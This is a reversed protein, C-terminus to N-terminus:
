AAVLVRGEIEDRSWDVAGMQTNENDEVVTFRAVLYRSTSEFQYDDGEDVSERKLPSATGGISSNKSGNRPRSPPYEPIQWIILQGDDAISALYRKSHDETTPSTSSSPLPSWKIVQVDDTHGEFVYHYAQDDLRHIFIKHDNGATAFVQDDLWDVDNV